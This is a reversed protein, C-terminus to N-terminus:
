PRPAPSRRGRADRLDGAGEGKGPKAFRFGHKGPFRVSGRAEARSAPDPRVAVGGSERDDIQMLYAVLQEQERPALHSTRCHRDEPNAVSIVDMLTAASGDHLYPCLEWIGKLTPTDLGM